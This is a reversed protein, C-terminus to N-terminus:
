NKLIFFLYTTAIMFYIVVFMIIIIHLESKDIFSLRINIILTLSINTHTLFRKRLYDIKM